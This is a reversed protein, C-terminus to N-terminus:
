SDSKADTPEESVEPSIDPMQKNEIWHRLLELAKQMQTDDEDKLGRLSVMTEVKDETEPSSGNDKETQENDLRGELDSERIVTHTASKEGNPAVLKVQVDPIIGTNQISIGNPTYYKATTIRLGSGDSIPIVSQVSGKGFTTTGLIIARKYDKLAGAVIESASASGQNVLVILPLDAALARKRSKFESKDGYRDMTYVVMQGRSLFLGSIEVAGKLLGGPNNRLDLILGQADEKKVKKLAKGLEKASREQFQNLKIYGIHNELMRSKVSKVKIIDRTITYVKPMELGKRMVSINIDTGKKGRMKKVAEHLSMDKTSEKEIKVIKDGAEIGARWAPTDEIPAIVTLVSNRIAIQIGPGGFEGKTDVKMEKYDDPTMFGSHPDLSRLMGKLADYVLEKTDVEEVYNRKVASLVETFVQLEKYDDSSNAGANSTFRTEILALSAMLALILTFSWLIKYKHSM